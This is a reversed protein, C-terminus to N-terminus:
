RCSRSCKGTPPFPIAIPWADPHCLDSHVPQHKEDNTLCRQYARGERRLESHFLLPIENM